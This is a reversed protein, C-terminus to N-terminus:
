VAGERAAQMQKFQICRSAVIQAWREPTIKGRQVYYSKHAIKLAKEYHGKFEETM